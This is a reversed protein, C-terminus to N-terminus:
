HPRNLSHGQRESISQMPMHSASIYYVTDLANTSGRNFWVKKFGGRREATPPASLPVPFTRTPSNKDWSPGCLAAPHTWAM